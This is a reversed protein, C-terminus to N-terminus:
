FDLFAYFDISSAGSYAPIDTFTKSVQTKNWKKLFILLLLIARNRVKQQTLEVSETIVSYTCRNNKMSSSQSYFINKIATKILM